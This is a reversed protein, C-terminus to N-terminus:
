GVKIRRSTDNTQQHNRINVTGAGAQWTISVDQGVNPIRDLALAPYLHKGDETELVCMLADHAPSFAYSEVKGECRPEPPEAAVIESLTILTKEQGVMTTFANIAPASQGAHGLRHTEANFITNTVHIEDIVKLSLEVALSLGTFDGRGIASELLDCLMEAEAMLKLTRSEANQTQTAFVSNTKTNDKETKLAESANESNTKRITGTFKPDVYSIALTPGFLRRTKRVSDLRQAHSNLRMEAERQIFKKRRRDITAGPFSQYSSM